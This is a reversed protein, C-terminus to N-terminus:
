HGVCAHTTVLRRRVSRRQALKWRYPNRRLRRPSPLGEAVSIVGRPGVRILNARVGRTPSERVLARRTHALVEIKLETPHAYGVESRVARARQVAVEPMPLRVSRSKMKESRPVALDSVTTLTTRYDLSSALAAGAKALFERQVRQAREVEARAELAANDTALRRLREENRARETLDRTVKAFGVLDGAENRMATLTVGAWFRSGDKRLRWGEEEFLAEGTAVELEREPKGTGKDEEPYFSSFHKGVIEKADYGKMRQAAANWTVVHGTPDLIFTADKV